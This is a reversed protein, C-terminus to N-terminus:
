LLQDGAGVEEEGGRERRGGGLVSALLSEEEKVGAAGGGEENERKSWGNEEGLTDRHTRPGGEGVGERGGQAQAVRM